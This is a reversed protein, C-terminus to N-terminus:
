ARTKTSRPSDPTEIHTEKCAAILSYQLIAKSKDFYCLREENGRIGDRFSKMYGLFVSLPLGKESQPVEIARTQTRYVLWHSAAFTRRM